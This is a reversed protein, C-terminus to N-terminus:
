RQSEVHRHKHHDSLYVHTRSVDELTLSVCVCVCRNVKCRHVNVSWSLTLVNISVLNNNLLKVVLEQEKIHLPHPWCLVVNVYAGGEVRVLSCDSIQAAPFYFGLSPASVWRASGSKSVCHTFM